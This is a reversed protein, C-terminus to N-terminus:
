QSYADTAKVFLSLNPKFSNLTVTEIHTQIGKHSRAIINRVSFCQETCPHTDGFPNLDLPRWPSQAPFSREERASSDPASPDPSASCLSLPPCSRPLPPRPLPPAMSWPPRPRLRPHAPGQQPPPGSTLPTAPGPTTKALTPTAQTGPLASGQQGALRNPPPAQASLHAWPQAPPPGRPAPPRLPARSCCGREAGAWGCCM